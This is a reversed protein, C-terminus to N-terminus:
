TEQKESLFGTLRAGNSNMADSFEWKATEFLTVAVREFGGTLMNLLFILTQM